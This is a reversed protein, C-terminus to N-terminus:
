AAMGYYSGGTGRQDWTAITFTDLLDKHQTLISHRNPVGPGGHLFLLIPNSINESVIHIRQKIGNIIIKKKIDITM